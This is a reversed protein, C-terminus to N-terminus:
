MSSGVGNGAQRKLKEKARQVRDRRLGRPFFGLVLGLVPFGIIVMVLLDSPVSQQGDVEGRLFSALVM